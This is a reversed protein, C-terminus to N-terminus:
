FVHFFHESLSLVNSPLFVVKGVFTCIILPVINGIALYLHSNSWLSPQPSFFQHKQNTNSSFVSLGKSQWSILGTLGLPFWGQINAPLVSAWASAGINQDDAENSFFTIRAFFSPLLLLPHCSILHNSLKVSEISTLKLLSQSMTFSLSPQHAATWPTASNSM